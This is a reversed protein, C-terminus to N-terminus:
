AKSSQRKKPWSVEESGAAAGSRKKKQAPPETVDVASSKKVKIEVPKPTPIEAGQEEEEDSEDGETEIGTWRDKLDSSWIPLSASKGTKVEVNQVNKWGEYPVRKMVVPLAAALNEVLDDATMRSASGIPLSMTSGRNAFFRSSGVAKDLEQKLHKTRVVNVSIPMKKKQQWKSGLLKPMLPGVREDCLFIDYEDLLQRRAEFPAFKGKLKSVGIIRHVSKVGLTPLLDKYHRQPDKVFLCVTSTSPDHIPHPLPSRALLPDDLNILLPTLKGSLSLRTVSM